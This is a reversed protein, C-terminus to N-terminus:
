IPGTTTTTTTTTSSTTSTPTSNVPLALKLMSILFNSLLSIYWKPGEDNHNVDKSDIPNSILTKTTTLNVSSETTTTTTPLVGSNPAERAEGDTTLNDARSTNSVIVTTPSSTTTPTLISAVTSTPKGFMRKIKPMFRSTTPLSLFPIERVYALWSSIVDLLSAMFSGTSSNVSRQYRATEGARSAFRNVFKKFPDDDRTALRVSHAIDPEGLISILREPHNTMVADVGMRLAERMRDHLDITWQYVKKPYGLEHDRKLLAKSLRELNYFPSFCNTFGDGQWIQLSNGFRKWMTEIRHLDDNMGVDFGIRELLHSSNNEELRHILNNVLEVDTVHNVSLVLRLKNPNSETQKPYLHTMISNALEIGAQAKGIQDLYDLKLDLFLLTLNKGIGEPQAIAIEHVYSLYDNFDEQQHCHRWCDCPPGHYTYIPEGMPNFSIDAEVANAGKSSVCISM